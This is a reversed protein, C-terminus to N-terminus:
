PMFGSYHSRLKLVRKLSYISGECCGAVLLWEGDQAM